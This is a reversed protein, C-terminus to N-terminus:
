AILLDLVIEMGTNVHKQSLFITFVDLNIGELIERNVHWVSLM